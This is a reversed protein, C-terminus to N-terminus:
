RNWLPLVAGGYPMFLVKAENGKQEIATDLAEQVSHFPVLFMSRVLPEELESVLFVTKSKLVAAIAAAKHGGLQFDTRIRETLEEPSSASRLWREFVPEGLGEGCAAALIIIGGDKAAYKANDLTKQAQYLNIDKPFGGPTALVIDAQQPIPRGCLQDVFRCGARHALVPHGAFARLIHKHADLVVNLIFDVGCIRGAEEIDERIPNGDLQGARAGPETMHRHNSQIAQRTSVGPMIAKVGGSYGAFYHYEINGLCIRRDAEGVVRTIDVPTGGTTTGLHVFDEPDSDVCRIERWAREGALARREEATHRRHSGVAFVLTIDERSVGAAYLEDLILPMVERTPMPRTIDSSIVAIREGPRVLERLRPSGVPEELARRVPDEEAGAAGEEPLLIGCLREEALEARQVGSGYGVELIM